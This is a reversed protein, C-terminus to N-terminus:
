STCNTTWTKQDSLLQKLRERARSLHVKVTNVPLDLTSAIERYPLGNVEYLIFVSRHNEPLRQLAADIRERLDESDLSAGPELADDDPHEDFMDDGVAIAANQNSRRRIQDLCHNRTTRLIWARANFLTVKPLNNWVRLLVEQTADEADAANGLLSRAYRFIDDAHRRCLIKFEIERLM